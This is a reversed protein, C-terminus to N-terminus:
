ICHGWQSVFLIHVYMGVKNRTNHYVKFITKPPKTQSKNKIKELINM